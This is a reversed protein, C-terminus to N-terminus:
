SRPHRSSLEREWGEPLIMGQQSLSGLLYRFSELLFATEVKRSCRFNKPDDYSVIGLTAVWSTGKM